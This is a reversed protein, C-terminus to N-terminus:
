PAPTSDPASMGGVIRWVRGQKMWTHTLRVTSTSETGDDNRVRVIARYFTIGISGHIDVSERQLQYSLVRGFSKGSKFDSVGGAKGVPHAKSMPWGVFDDSWLATWRDADHAQVYKWYAEEQACIEAASGVLASAKQARAPICLTLLLISCLIIRNM